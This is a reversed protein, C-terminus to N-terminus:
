EDKRRVPPHEGAAAQGLEAVLEEQEEGAPPAAPPAEQKAAGMIDQEVGGLVEMPQNQKSNCTALNSNLHKPFSRFSLDVFHIRTQRHRWLSVIYRSNQETADQKLCSPHRYVPEFGLQRSIVHQSGQFCACCSGTTEDM